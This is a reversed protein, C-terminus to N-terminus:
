VSRKTFILDYSPVVMTFCDQVGTGDLTDLSEKELEPPFRFEFNRVITAIVLRMEMMAFSKGACSYPGASFPIFAEKRIVLEPQDVWREPIFEDPHQYNRPDTLSRPDM